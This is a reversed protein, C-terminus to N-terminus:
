NSNIARIQTSPPCKTNYNRYVKGSESPFCRRYLNRRNQHQCNLVKMEGPFYFHVPTLRSHFQVLIEEGDETENPLFHTNNTHLPTIAIYNIILIFYWLKELKSRGIELCIHTQNSEGAVPRNGKVCYV